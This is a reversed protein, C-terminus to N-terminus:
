EAPLPCFLIIYLVKFFLCKTNIYPRVTVQAEREKKLALQLEEKVVRMESESEVSSPRMAEEQGQMLEQPTLHVTLILHVPSLVLCLMWHM